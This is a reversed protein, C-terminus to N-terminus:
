YLVLKKKGKAGKQASRTVYILRRCSHWATNSSSLIPNPTHPRSNNSGVDGAKNFNLGKANLAEVDDLPVTDARSLLSVEDDDGNKGESNAGSAGGGGTVPPPDAGIKEFHIVVGSQLKQVLSDICQHLVRQSTVAYSRGGTVECMADIPSGDSAVHGTEQSLPPTGAMRLVLAYLRQDWRFPERTLESGPVSSHM